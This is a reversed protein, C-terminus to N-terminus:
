LYIVQYPTSFYAIFYPFQRKVEFNSRCVYHQMSKSMHKLYSKILVKGDLHDIGLRVITNGTPALLCSSFWCAAANYNRVSIRRYGETAQTEQTRIGRFSKHGVRIPMSIPWCFRVSVSLVQGAPPLAVNTPPYAWCSQRGATQQLNRCCGSPYKGRIVNAVCVVVCVCLARM